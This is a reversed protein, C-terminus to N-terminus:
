LANVLQLIDHLELSQLVAILAPSLVEELLEHEACSQYSSHKDRDFSGCPLSYMM